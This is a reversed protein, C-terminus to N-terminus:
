IIQLRCFKYLNIKVCQMKLTNKNTLLFNQRNLSEYSKFYNKTL